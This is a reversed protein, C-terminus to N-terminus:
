CAFLGDSFHRSSCEADLSKKSSFYELLYPHSVVYADDELTRTAPEIAFVDRM